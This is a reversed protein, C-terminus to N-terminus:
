ALSFSSCISLRFQHVPGIAAERAVRTARGPQLSERFGFAPRATRQAGVAAVVSGVACLVARGSHRARGGGFPKHCPSNHRKGHVTSDAALNQVATVSDAFDGSQSYYRKKLPHTPLAGLELGWAGFFSWTEFGLPTGLLESQRGGGFGQGAHPGTTKSSPAQLKRPIELKPNPAKYSGSAWRRCPQVVWLPSESSETAVTWSARAGVRAASPEHDWHM